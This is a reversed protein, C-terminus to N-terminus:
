KGSGSLTMATRELSSADDVKAGHVIEVNGLNYRSKTLYTYDIHNLSIADCKYKSIIKKWRKYKSQQDVGISHRPFYIRKYVTNNKPKNYNKTYIYPM